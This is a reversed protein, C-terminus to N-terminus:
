FSYGLTIGYRFSPLILSDSNKDPSLDFDANILDLISYLELADNLDFWFEDPAAVVEDFKFKYNGAGPGAIMFDIYFRKALLLKYGVMFGLSQTNVQVDYQFPFEGNENIYLGKFESKLDVFTVYAGFYFGNLMGKSHENIYYRVEPVIRYGNYTLDGTKFQETDLGSLKLLGGNSKYGFNLAVGIHEGVAREYGITYRGNIVDTLQFKAENKHIPITEEQGFVPTIAILCIFIKLLSKM